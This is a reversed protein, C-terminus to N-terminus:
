SNLWCKQRLQSLIQSTNIELIGLLWSFTNILMRLLQRCLLFFDSLDLIEAGLYLLFIISLINAFNLIKLGIVQM